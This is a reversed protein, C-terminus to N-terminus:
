TGLAATDNSCRTQTDLRFSVQNAPEFHSLTIRFNNVLTIKQLRRPIKVTAQGAQASSEGLVVGSILTPSFIPGVTSARDPISTTLGSGAVSITSVALPKIAILELTIRFHRTRTRYSVGSIACFILCKILTSFFTLKLATRSTRPPEIALYFTINLENTRCFNGVARVIEHSTWIVSVRKRVSSLKHWSHRM